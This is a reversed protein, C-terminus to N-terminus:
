ARAYPLHGRIFHNSETQVLWGEKRAEGRSRQGRHTSHSTPCQMSIRHQEEEEKGGGSPVPAPFLLM